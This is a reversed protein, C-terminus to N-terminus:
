KKEGADFRAQGVGAYFGAKRAERFPGALTDPVIQERAKAARYGTRYGDLYAEREMINADFPTSSPTAIPEPATMACGALFAAAL